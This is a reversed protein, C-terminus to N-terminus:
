YDSSTDIENFAADKNDGECINTLLTLSYLVHYWRGSALLTFFVLSNWLIRNEM